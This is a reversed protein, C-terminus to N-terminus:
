LQNRYSKCPAPAHQTAVRVAEQTKSSSSRGVPTSTARVTCLERQMYAWGRRSKLENCRECKASISQHSLSTCFRALRQWDSSQLKVTRRSSSTSLLTGYKTYFSVVFKAWHCKVGSKLLLHKYQVSLMLLLASIGQASVEINRHPM